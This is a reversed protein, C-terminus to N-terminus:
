SPVALVQPPPSVGWLPFSRVLVSYQGDDNWPSEVVASAVVFRKPLGFCPNDSGRLLALALIAVGGDLFRTANPRELEYCLM